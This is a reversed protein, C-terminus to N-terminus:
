LLTYIFRWTSMQCPTGSGYTGCRLFKLELPNGAMPSGREEERHSPEHCPELEVGMAMFGIRLGLRHGEEVEMVIRLAVTQM